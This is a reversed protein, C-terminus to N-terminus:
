FKRPTKEDKVCSGVVGRISGSATGQVELFFAGTSRDIRVTELGQKWTVFNYGIVIDEAHVDKGDIIVQNNYIEVIKKNTNDTNSCTLLIEQAEAQKIFILCALSASLLIVKNM